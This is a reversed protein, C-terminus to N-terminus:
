GSNQEVEIFSLKGTLSDRSYVAISNDSYCAAYLNKGDPSFALDIPGGANVDRFEGALSFSGRSVAVSTAAAPSSMLLVALIVFPILVRTKM